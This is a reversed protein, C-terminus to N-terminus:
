NPLLSLFAILHSLFLDIGWSLITNFLNKIIKRFSISIKNSQNYSNALKRLEVIEEKTMEGFAELNGEKPSYKLKKIM